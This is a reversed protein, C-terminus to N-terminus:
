VAAVNHFRLPTAMAAAVNATLAGIQSHIYRLYTNSSWRGLKQILVEDYGNLKLAMAGSARLSHSGIREPAHGDLGTAQVSLRVAKVIHDSQVRQLSGNSAHYSCLPTTPPLTALHNLRRVAAGVPCFLPDPAATHHLM